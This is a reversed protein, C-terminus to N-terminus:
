AVMRLEAKLESSMKAERERAKLEKERLEKQIPEQLKLAYKLVDDLSPKDLLVEKTDKPITKFINFDDMSELRTIQPIPDFAEWARVPESMVISVTHAITINFKLRCDMPIRHHEMAEYFMASYDLNNSFGYAGSEKHRMAIKLSLNCEDKCVSFDWGHHGLTHTDSEWGLWEVRIPPSLMIERPNTSM